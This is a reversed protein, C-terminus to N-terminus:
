HRQSLLAEAASSLNAAERALSESANLVNQIRLVNDRMADTNLEGSAIARVVPANEETIGELKIGLQYRLRLLEMVPKPIRRDNEYRSGGSQTVGIASWFEQQNLDLQVRLARPDFSINNDTSM